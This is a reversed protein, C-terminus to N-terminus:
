WEGKLLMGAIKVARTHTQKAWDSALAEDHATQWDGARVARLMRKFGELGRRGMQFAMSALAAQRPSNLAGYVDRGVVEAAANVARTIDHDLMMEAEERSIGATSLCRGYGITWRGLTDLYLKLSLGEDAVLLERLTM